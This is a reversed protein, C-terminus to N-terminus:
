EAAFWTREAPRERVGSAMGCDVITIPRAIKIRCIVTEMPSINMLVSASLSSPYITHIVKSNKENQKSYQKEQEKDSLLNAKCEGYCTDDPKYYDFIRAGQLRASHHCPVSYVAKLENGYGHEYEHTFQNNM